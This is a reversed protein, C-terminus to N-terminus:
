GSGKEAMEVLAALAKPTDAEVMPGIDTAGPGVIHTTVSISSGDGNAKVVHDINIVLDGMSIRDVFRKHPDVIDLVFPAEVGGNLVLTGAAGEAFRGELAVQQVSPDWCHWSGIDSWLAWVDHPSATTSVTHEYEFSM